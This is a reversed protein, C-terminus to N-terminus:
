SLQDMTVVGVIRCRRPLRELSGRSIRGDSWVLLYRAGCSNSITLPTHVNGTQRDKTGLSLRCSESQYVSWDRITRGDCRFAQLKNIFRDLVKM